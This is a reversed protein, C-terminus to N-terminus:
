SIFQTLIYRIMIVLPSGQYSLCYLILRCHLLGPNLEQTPFIGQLLAHCLMGTNKGPSDQPYFLRTPWLGYPPLSDSMVSCRVYGSCGVIMIVLIKGM